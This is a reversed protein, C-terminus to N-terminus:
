LLQYIEKSLCPICGNFGYIESYDGNEVKVFFGDICELDYKAVDDGLYEKIMNVDQSDTVLLLDDRDEIDRITM